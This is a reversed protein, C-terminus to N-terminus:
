AFGRHAITIAPLFSSTAMQLRPMLGPLLRFAATETYRLEQLRKFVTM